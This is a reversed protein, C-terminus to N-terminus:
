AAAATGRVLSGLAGVLLAIPVLVGGAALGFTSGAILSLVIAIGGGLVGLALVLITFLRAPGTLARRNPGKRALQFALVALLLTLVALLAAVLGGGVLAGDSGSGGFCLASIAANVVAFVLLIGGLAGPRRARAPGQSDSPPMASGNGTM